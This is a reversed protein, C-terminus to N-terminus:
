FFNLTNSPVTERWKHNIFGAVFSTEWRKLHEEQILNYQFVFFYLLNDYRGDYERITCIFIFLLLKFWVLTFFLWELSNKNVSNPYHVSGIMSHMYQLDASVQGWACVNKVHINAWWTSRMPSSLNCSLSMADTYHSDHRSLGTNSHNLINVM